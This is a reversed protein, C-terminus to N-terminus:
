QAVSSLRFAMVAYLLASAAAVTTRPRWILGSVLVGAGLLSMGIVAAHGMVFHVVEVAPGLAYLCAVAWFAWVLLTPGAVILAVIFALRRLAAGKSRSWTPRDILGNGTIPRFSGAYAELSLIIDVDLVWKNLDRSSLKV